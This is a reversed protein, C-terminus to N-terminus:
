SPPAGPFLTALSNRLTKPTRPRANGRAKLNALAVEYPSQSPGGPITVKPATTPKSVQGGANPCKFAGRQNLVVRLKDKVSMSGLLANVSTCCAVCNSDNNTGGNALAVLHEVSAQARELPKACFFCKGGQAFLLRDLPSTPM